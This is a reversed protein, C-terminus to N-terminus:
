RHGVEPKAGFNQILFRLYFALTDRRNIDGGLGHDGTPDIVLEVLPGRGNQLLTRYVAITHQFLVNSDEMGHLLMLRDQLNMAVKTLSFKDLFEVKGAEQIGIVNEVYGQNYNQWETPGAGAIGVQYVGPQTYLVHQTQWGGFSWGNLAMRNPDAGYEAQLHRAADVLDETQPVGIQGSSARGFLAGYGSSGRPDVTATVYGMSYTLYMNFLYATSNFSGDVVSSGTGLPGGYTYVMCPRLDTKKWDKPLFVFGSVTHGHRNKFSFRQPKIRNVAAFEELHHSTTLKTERGGKILYTEKPTSWNAFAALAASCDNSVTPSDYNGEGKSWKTLSGDAISATYIQARGVDGGNSYGVLKKGDRSICVPYFDFEGQVIPRSTKQVPDILWPLRWGTTELLAVVREGDPTFFPAAQDNGLMEGPETVKAVSEVKKTGLDAVFVERERSSRNLTAFTFRKSDPSWPTTRTLVDRVFDEDASKWKWVEWPKNDDFDPKTLDYLFLYREEKLKEDPTGYYQNSRRIEPFRKRYSIWTIQNYEGTSKGSFIMMKSGDPSLSYGWLPLGDPLKPDLQTVGPGDFRMRFLGQGRRFYFGADDPMWRVDSEGERTNTLRTVQGGPGEVKITESGKWGPGSRVPDWRDPQVELLFLDGRYVFLLRDGSHSWEYDSVGPYEPLPEKRDEDEKKKKNQWERYGKEDLKLSEDRERDERAFRDGAKVAEYDFAKLLDLSTARIAKGKQTDYIWLDSGRDDYANWLYAVFRDDHSWQAARATKGFFSRRPFLDDFKLDSEVTPTWPQATAVLNLSILALLTLGSRM